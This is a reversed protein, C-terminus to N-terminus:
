EYKKDFLFFIIIFEAMERDRTKGRGDETEQRRFGTERRVYKM